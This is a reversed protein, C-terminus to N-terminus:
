VRLSGRFGRAAYFSPAGNHYLFVREGFPGALHQAARGRRRTVARANNVYSSRQEEGAM